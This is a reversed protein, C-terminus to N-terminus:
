RAPREPKEAHEAKEATGKEKSAKSSKSKRPKPKTINKEATDLGKDAKGGSEKAAPTTEVTTAAGAGTTPKAPAETQAYAVSVSAFLLAALLQSTKIM